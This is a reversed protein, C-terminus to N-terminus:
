LAGFVQPAIVRKRFPSKVIQQALRKFAYGARLQAHERNRFPQTLEYLLFWFRARVFRRQSV